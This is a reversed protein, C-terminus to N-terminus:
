VFACTIIFFYIFQVEGFNFVKVDPLISHLFSLRFSLLFYRCVMHRIFLTCRSYILFQLLEVIFTLHDLKKFSCLLQFSKKGFICFYCILVHTHEVDVTILSICLLVGHSVGEYGSPHIYFVSLCVSLLLYHHLFVSVLIKYVASSFPFPGPM